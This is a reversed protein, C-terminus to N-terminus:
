DPSRNPLRFLCQAHCQLRHVIPPCAHLLLGLDQPHKTSLHILFSIRVWWAYTAYVAKKSWVLAAAEAKQVGLQADRTVQDPNQQIDKDNQAELSLTESGSSSPGTEPVDAALKPEQIGSPALDSVITNDKRGRIQDLVGM